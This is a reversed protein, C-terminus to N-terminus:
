YAVVAGLHVVSVDRFDTFRWYEYGLRFSYDVTPSVNVGLTWRVVGSSQDNATGLPDGERLLGDFRGVLTLYRGLPSEAQLYFGKKLLNDRSEEVLIETDRELYESRLQVNGLRLALDVGWASYDYDSAPDYAGRLYSGGMTLIDQSVSLRAGWAPDDNNDTFGADDLQNKFVFDRPQAARFGNVVYIAYWWQISDKIWLDGYLSAGQDSYPAPIVGLNFQDAQFRLMHGMSYPLPKSQLVDNGPDHRLYYDGFPVNIRGAEVNALPHARIEAYAQDVTAGHCSTCVKVSATLHDSVDVTAKLAVEVVTGAKALQEPKEVDMIKQDVSVSGSWDWRAAMVLPLLGLLILVGPLSRSRRPPRAVM